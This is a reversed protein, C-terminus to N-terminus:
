LHIEHPHLPAVIAPVHSVLVVVRLAAVHAVLDQCYALGERDIASFPEDLLLVPSDRAVTMAFAVKERMGQSFNGLVDSRTSMGLDSLLAGFRDRFQSEARATYQWLEVVLAAHEAITLEPYVPLESPLYAVQGRMVPGGDVMVSGHTPARVGACLDLLTTKGAGNRGRLWWTTGSALRFNVNSLADDDGHPYRYTIESLALEGM